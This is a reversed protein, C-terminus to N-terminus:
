IQLDPLVTYEHLNPLAGIVVYADRQVWAHAEIQGDDKKKVGIRLRSEIGRRRYLLHLALAQPLCPRERLMNNSALRVARALEEPLYDGELRPQRVALKEMLGAARRFSFLELVARFVAVLLIAKVHLRRHRAPERLVTRIKRLVVM